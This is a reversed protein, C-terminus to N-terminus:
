GHRHDYGHSREQSHQHGLDHDFTRGHSYAGKEPSFPLNDATMEAGLLKLMAELVHDARIVLHDAGIRCPTHRNGIHWALRVLDGRIILVPEPAAWVVIRRGDSLEFVDGDDLSIAEALDLFFEGADCVLRRRRLRRGEYDLVIQGDFPGEAQRIVKHCHITM